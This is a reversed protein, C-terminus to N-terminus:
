SKDQNEINSIINITFDILENYIQNELRLIAYLKKFIELKESLFNKIVNKACFINLTSTVKNWLGYNLFLIM